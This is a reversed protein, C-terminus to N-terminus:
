TNHSPFNTLSERLLSKVGPCKTHDTFWYCDKCGHCANVPEGSLVHNAFDPDALMARGIGVLDACDQEVLYNAQEATRIGNVAIVPIHVEKRIRCGSFTVASLPFGQPAPGEPMKMGFSINLL